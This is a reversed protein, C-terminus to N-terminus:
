IERKLRLASWTKDIAILSVPKLHYNGTYRWITDRHIDSRKDSTLKPYCIWYAGDRKLFPEYDPLQIELEEQSHVFLLIQDLGKEPQDKRIVEPHMSEFLTTLEPPLNLVLMKMGPKIFMKQFISKEAM